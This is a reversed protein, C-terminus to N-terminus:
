RRRRAPVIADHSGFRKRDINAASRQGPQLLAVTQGDHEQMSPDAVLAHPEVLHLRDGIGAPMCNGIIPATIALGGAGILREAMELIEFRQEFREIDMRRHQDATRHAATQGDIKRQDM